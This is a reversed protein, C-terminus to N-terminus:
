AAKVGGHYIRSILNDVIYNKIGSFLQQEEEQVRNYYYSLILSLILSFFTAHFAVYLSQTVDNLGEPTNARDFKGIASSIGLVTGIFGISSVGPLLYEVIGYSVQSEERVSETQTNIVELTDSISGENRYQNCARKIMSILYFQYGHNEMELMKLKFEPVQEPRIVKESGTPLLNMKFASQERELAHQHYLLIFLGYLFFFFASVQIMGLPMHGGMIEMSHHILSKQEGKAPATASYIGWVALAYFMSLLGAIAAIVQNKHRPPISALLSGIMSKFNLNGTM